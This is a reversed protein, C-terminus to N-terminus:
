ESVEWKELRYFWEAHWKFEPTVMISGLDSPQPRDGFGPVHVRAGYAGLWVSSYIPLIPLDEIFMENVQRGIREQQTRTLAGSLAELLSDLKPSAYGMADTYASHFYFYAGSLSGGWGGVRVADYDHERYYAVAWSPTDMEEFSIRLGADGLMAQEAQHMSRQDPNAFAPTKVTVTRAGDWEAKGLLSKARASDGSEPYKRKMEDTVVGMPMFLCTNNIVGLGGVFRDVLGRRDLALIAAQRIRPDALWETRSNFAYGASTRQSAVAALEFRPDQLLAKYADMSLEGRRNVDIEGRQMAAHTVEPSRILHVLVAEIKPEGLFYDPNAEFQIFHGPRRQAFRYPGSGVMGDVFFEDADLKEPGVGGLLHEPLVPKVYLADLFFASPSVLDLRFSHEDLVVVGEVGEAMGESFDRAGKIMSLRDVHHGGTQQGAYASITFAVDRATVPAGDHFVADERLHFTYSAGDASVEWREALEPGFAQRMPDAMVLNSFLYANALSVYGSAGTFPSLKRVESSTRMHLVTEADGVPGLERVIRQEVTVIKEVPVERVVEREVVVLKEIPIEKVVPQDIIINREVPVETVVERTCALVAASLAAGM